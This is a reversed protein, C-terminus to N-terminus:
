PFTKHCNANSLMPHLLVSHFDHKGIDRVDDDDARSLFLYPPLGHRRSTLSIFIASTMTTQENSFYIHRFDDDDARSLFLYPPINNMSCVFLFVRRYIANSYCLSFGYFFNISRRWIGGYKNRDRSFSSSTLSTPFCSKREPRSSEIIGLCLPQFRM